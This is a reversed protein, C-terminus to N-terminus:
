VTSKRDTSAENKRERATVIGVFKTKKDADYDPWFTIKDGLKIVLADVDDDNPSYAVNFAVARAAQAASGSWAVSAIYGTIDTDKWKLRM